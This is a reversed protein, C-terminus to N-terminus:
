KSNVWWQYANEIQKEKVQNDWVAVAYSLALPKGSLVKLPKRHLNLTASVYAFPNTMTFWYTPHRLNDPHGFMAVTVTKGNAKATYACWDARVLKESGRVVEGVKGESNRFEGGTDMSKVFRMGLGFYHSGTLTVSDKGSPVAFRSQWSLLTVNFKDPQCVMITREEKLMLEKSRPNVWNLQETFSASPINGQKDIKINVFSRHSQRGPAQQEEWFNVGDVAIAYMLAHHHLHDAPADRLVNVGRPSFLEYVCPKFPVNEYNYRMLVRSGTHASIVNEEMTIRMPNDAFAQNSVYLLGAVFLIFIDIRKFKDM